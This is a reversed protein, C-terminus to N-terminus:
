GDRGSLTEPPAVTVPGPAEALLQERLRKLGRHVAVRVAGPSRGVLAAVEAVDMGVLIRLTVM